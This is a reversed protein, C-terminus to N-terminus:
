THQLLQFSAKLNCGEEEISTSTCAGTTDSGHVKAMVTCGVSSVGCPPKVTDQGQM